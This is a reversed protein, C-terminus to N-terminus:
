SIDVKKRSLMSVQASAEHERALRMVLEAAQESCPLVRDIYESFNRFEKSNFCGFLVDNVRRQYASLFALKARGLPTVKLIVRRRDVKDAVKEIYGIGSLKNTETAVFASTLKVLTALEGVVIGDGENTRYILMLLEHQPPSIGILKAYGARLVDVENTIAMLTHIMRRFARDSGDVLLAKASVTRLVPDRSPDQNQGAPKKITAKTM